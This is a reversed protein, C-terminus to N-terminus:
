QNQNRKLCRKNREIRKAEKHFETIKLKFKIYWIFMQWRNTCCANFGTEPQSVKMFWRYAINLFFGLSIYLLYRFM